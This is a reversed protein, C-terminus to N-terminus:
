EVLAQRSFRSTMTGEVIVLLEYMLLIWGIALRRYIVDTCGEEQFLVTWITQGFTGLHLGWITHPKNNFLTYL